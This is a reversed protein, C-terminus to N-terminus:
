SSILDDESLPCKRSTDRGGCLKKMGALTQTVLPGRWIARVNPFYPKLTNCIGSLYSGVSKPNIHHAMFVVYFSLTDATPEVHFDHIKVFTLYSQLHSNYTHASSPDIAHSLAIACEQLLRNRTWATRVPQRSAPAAQMMIACGGDCGSLTSFAQNALGPHHALAVSFLGRSLADAVVNNVGDIHFVRLSTKSKTLIRVAFLLLENYGAHAKLSHFMEVSDLSDTHILIRQPHLPLESAWLLASVVCLAEYFYITTVPAGVPVTSCYGCNLSPCYFGMSSMSSNCFVELDCEEPLWEVAKLLFIGDSDEL